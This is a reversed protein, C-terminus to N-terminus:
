KKQSRGKAVAPATWPDDPWAHKPYRRQLEKKVEFYLNNWFSNLDSTVQVPKYGPSLLHMVVSTKGNNLKPTDSLGFVEQLRVSLVPTTGNPFYQISIKSGSPVEIKAPALSNLQQQKEYDLSYLLAESLNIKKLDEPKKVDKLYSGLWEKNSALLVPTSVDPWDEDINWKRLSLIRNQLQTMTEDFDLLNEGETKIANSIAEALHEISPKSLPKSQLVISGIRLEKTAILGGKRTDWTINEYEKVMPLLDKPNLPAAMFIKGLGDRLDMHAVALWPEHALDDKHGAAAYKGNALQFQANNGPRAFAIREPYAYALL